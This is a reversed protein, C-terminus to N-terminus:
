HSFLFLSFVGGFEFFYYLIICIIFYENRIMPNKHNKKYVDMEVANDHEKKESM